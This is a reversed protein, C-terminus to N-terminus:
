LVVLVKKDARFAHASSSTCNAAGAKSRGTSTQKFLAADRLAERILLLEAARHRSQSYRELRKKLLVRLETREDWKRM